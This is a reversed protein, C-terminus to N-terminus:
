AVSINIPDHLLLPFNIPDHLLINIPDLLPLISLIMSTCCFISLILCRSWAVSVNIPDHL